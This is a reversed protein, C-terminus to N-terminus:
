SHIPVIIVAIVIFQSSSQSSQIPYISHTTIIGFVMGGDGEGPGRALPWLAWITAEAVLGLYFTLPSVDLLM